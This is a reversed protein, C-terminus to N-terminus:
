SLTGELKWPWGDIGGMDVAQYGYQHLKDVVPASHVGNRCYVLVIPGPNGLVRRANQMNLEFYNLHMSGPIRLERHEPMSRIDLLVARHERLYILADEWEM